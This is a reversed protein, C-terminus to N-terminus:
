DEWYHQMEYYTFSATWAILVLGTIAELGALVQIPGEPVLDGYGLSSYTALSFYVVESFTDAGAIRGIGSRVLAFIGVAFLLAEVAHALTAVLITAGVRFRGLPLRRCAFTALRLAEYHVGISLLMLAVTAFGAILSGPSM